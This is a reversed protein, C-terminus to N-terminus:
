THVLLEVEVYGDAPYTSYIRVQGLPGTLEFLNERSGVSQWGGTSRVARLYARIGDWEIAHQRDGKAAWRGFCHTATGWDECAPPTLAALRSWEPPLAFSEGPWPASPGKEAAIPGDPSAPGAACGALLLTMAVAAVRLPRANM